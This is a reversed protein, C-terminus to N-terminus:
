FGNNSAASKGIAKEIAEMRAKRLKEMKDYADSWAEHAAAAAKVLADKEPTAKMLSWYAFARVGFNPHECLVIRKRIEVVRMRAMGYLLSNVYVHDGVKLTNKRLAKRPKNTKTKM